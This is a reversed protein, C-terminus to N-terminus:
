IEFLSATHYFNNKNILNPKGNRSFGLIILKINLLTQLQITGGKNKAREVDIQEEIEWAFL